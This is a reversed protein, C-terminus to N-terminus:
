DNNSTKKTKLRYILFFAERTLNGVFGSKRPWQEPAEGLRPLDKALQWEDMASPRSDPLGLIIPNKVGRVM